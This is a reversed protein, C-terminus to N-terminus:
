NKALSRDIAILWGECRLLEMSRRLFWDRSRDGVGGNWEGM